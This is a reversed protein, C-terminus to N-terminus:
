NYYHFLFILSFNTWCMRFAIYMFMKLTVNVLMLNYETGIHARPLVALFVEESHSVTAEKHKTALYKPAGM